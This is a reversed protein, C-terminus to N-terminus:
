APARVLPAQRASPRHAHTWRLAVVALGVLAADRGVVLIQAPVTGAIVSAYTASIAWTLVVVLAAVAVTWPSREDLAIAAAPVLWVIYQPSLVPAAVLVLSITAVWGVGATGRWRGVLAAGLVGLAFSAASGVTDLWGPLAAVRWAVNELIAVPSTFLRGVAGITSEIQPHTAGRFSVVQQLSAAGGYLVSGV